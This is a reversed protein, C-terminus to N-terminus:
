KTFPILDDRQSKKVFRNQSSFQKGYFRFDFVGDNISIAYDTPM